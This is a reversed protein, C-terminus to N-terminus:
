IGNKRTTILIKLLISLLLAMWPWENRESEKGHIIRGLIPGPIYEDEVPLEDKDSFDTDVEGCHCSPARESKKSKKSQIVIILLIYLLKMRIPM